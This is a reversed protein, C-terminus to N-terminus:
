KLPLLRSSVFEGIGAMVAAPLLRRLWFRPPPYCERNRRSRLGWSAGVLGLGVLGPALFTWLSTRSYTVGAAILVAGGLHLVGAPRIKLDALLILTLWLSLIASYFDCFQLM